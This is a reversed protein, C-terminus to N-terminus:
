APGGYENSRWFAWMDQENHRDITRWVQMGWIQSPDRSFRLQSLPIRFEAVWGLSDVSTAVDWVPDFSVDGNAHDGKVGSPTVEFWMRSNKDHFPDFVFAIKDSTLTGDNLLQDRRTLVSRVGKKGMTDFMRAGIYIAADDYLVRIETKETPAKGENPVAQTLEGIPTAAAWAAEDLKGDLAVDGNRRSAQAVPRPDSQSKTTQQAILPTSSIALALAIALKYQRALSVTNEESPPMRPSDIPRTSYTSLRM